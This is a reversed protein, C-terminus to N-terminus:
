EAHQAPNTRFYVALAGIITQILLFVEPSLLPEAVQVATVLVGIFITWNTRSKLANIM